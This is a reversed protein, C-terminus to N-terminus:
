NTLIGLLWARVTGAQQPRLEQVRDIAVLFTAQVLDEASHLDGALHQAVGLLQGATADFVAALDQPNRTRQFRLFSLDLAELSASAASASSPFSLRSM